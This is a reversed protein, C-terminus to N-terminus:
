VGALIKIHRVGDIADAAYDDAGLKKAVEINLPAGGVILKVKERLGADKLAKDVVSIEQVTMILLSSLAVVKAGSKKVAQLIKKESVDVGLDIVEFGASLLMMKLINKGIDHNDGSVTAVIIKEKTLKKKSELKPGLIKLADKMLEGAQVLESLFYQKEEYLKGVENMGDRLAELIEQPTAGRDLEVKVRNAIEDFNLNVIIDMLEKLTM